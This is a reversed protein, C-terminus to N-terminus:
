ITVNREKEKKHKIAQLLLKRYKKNQHNTFFTTIRRLDETITDHMQTLSLIEKVLIIAHSYTLTDKNEYRDLLTKVRDIQHKMATDTIAIGELLSQLEAELQTDIESQSM